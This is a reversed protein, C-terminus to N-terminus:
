RAPSPSTKPQTPAAPLGPAAISLAASSLCHVSTTRCRASRFRPLDILVAAAATFLFSVPSIYYLAELPHLKREDLLKQTLILRLAEFYISAFLLAMGRLSWHVEGISTVATCVSILLVAMASQRRPYGLGYFGQLLSRTRSLPLPESTPIRSPSM